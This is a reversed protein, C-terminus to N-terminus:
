AAEEGTGEVFQLEALRAYLPDRQVLEDHTGIDIIRGQNIVVIRDAKLVTALRHAIIITTRGQMLHDLAKQLLRENEADLSSTAEDLLLISPNKLIARAIAMRQRQGGSLRTGREGVYTDYGQPLDRIFEDAVALRAAEHVEDDTAGPRGFRINGLASDGFIVTEQPVVAIRERVERPDAQAIDVGDILIRGQQPDYFRLLLQFTTSKGAGSPGVFAIREGPRIDLTIGSLARREPRSPYSFGVNEFRIAGRGPRPLAQPNEPARVHPEANLLEILRETAGSARQVEGWMETLTGASTAAFLAYLVFQGLEGYTIEGALVSRTGMWVVFTIGGFVCCFTVFSMVSRVRTRAIATDYSLEVVKTYRDAVATEATFAQVIQVADLSESAMASTDAIRDQSARSLQRVKRGITIVPLLVAPILIVILGMLKLNTIALMVLAGPLQIMSRLVMSLSTGTISQVLTTDATLRSLVEGTRTEEFFMADMGIVHRYVASRVDAVVREGVWSVLYMRVAAMACFLVILAAFGAFYLNVTGGQKSALGHDIVFRAAVPLSLMLGSAALLEVLSLWLMGTYPKLFPLLAVLSRPTRGKPRSRPDQEFEAM